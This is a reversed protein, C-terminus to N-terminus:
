ATRNISDTPELFDKKRQETIGPSSKVEGEQSIGRVGEEWVGCLCSARALHPSFVVELKRAASTQEGSRLCGEQRRLMLRVMVQNAWIIGLAPLLKSDVLGYDCRGPNPGDVVDSVQNICFVPVSYTHSLRHLTASFALLHRAREIAEDAQFESRFLAAVSDVVILRVLGRELLTRVRQTVCTQLAELDATHEIYINDSFRISRILAPPINPRLRSQQTILQRLRKIPFPDETCIYVAGAGLGGHERSYQVSLSLQLGFQTKGAASEGALETIGHLPLGGSLLEDLVPCAFSLRHGPELSPFEGLTLQLATVPPVSRFLRSVAHLVLQVESSSLQLLRQLDSAPLSLVKKASNVNARKLAHIIKPSLELKDWDM